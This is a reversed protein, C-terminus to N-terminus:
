NYDRNDPDSVPQRQSCLRKQSRERGNERSISDFIQLSNFFHDACSHPSRIAEPNDKEDYVECTQLLMRPTRWNHLFYHSGTHLQTSVDM